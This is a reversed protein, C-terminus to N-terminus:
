SNKCGCSSPTCGCGGKYMPLSKYKQGSTTAGLGFRSYQKSLRDSSCSPCSVREDRSILLEFEKNCDNCVYEFIPM